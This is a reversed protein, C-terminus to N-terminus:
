PAELWERLRRAALEADRLAGAAAALAACGLYHGRDRGREEHNVLMANDQLGNLWALFALGAKYRATPAEFVHRGLAECPAMLELYRAGDRRALFRLALQAPLAVADLAGLLAHSFDGLALDQGGLTSWREVPPVSTTGEDAAGGLILRAFHLDDGTFVVQDRALLERRLDVELHADLLSLKCGRVKEPDLAMVKRFSDGPFYGDLEPLFMPGLWHVLLPGECARAIDGYVSVYDAETAGHRPLWPMPLVIPIGGAQRIVRAQFAVGEVLDTKSEIGTLHDTGAGAVFGHRLGLAGCELILREAAPWGLAFRQATDMAEAVGFGLRDLHRRVAMTAQWDIFRSITETPGPRWPSHLVQAYEARMVVHAAAFCTRAPRGPPDRDLELRHEQLLEDDFVIPGAPTAVEVRM